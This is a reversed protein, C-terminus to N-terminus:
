FAFQFQTRLTHGKAVPLMVQETPHTYRYQLQIRCKGYFWKDVGLTATYLQGKQEMNPQLYDASLVLDYREPLHIAATLYAGMSNIKQDRGFMYETSLSIPQYNAIVGASVRHRMYSEGAQIGKAAGMAVQKGGLYSTHLSLGEVPRIYLSGGFLKGLNLDKANMGQGNMAVVKYSVINKFLDGSLEIGMDRGATGHYLPDMGVGAFFVTPMSGGIALPNLFPAVQNEHGFPTKFQGIKVKLEPMFAYQMYLDKLMVPKNFQVTVGMTWQDTIKGIGLIEIKNTDFTATKMGNANYGGEAFIQGYGKVTIRKAFSEQQASATGAVLLLAALLLTIRKMM